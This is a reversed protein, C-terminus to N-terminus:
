LKKVLYLIALGGFFTLLNKFVEDSHMFGQYRLILAFNAINQSLPTLSCLLSHCALKKQTMNERSDM